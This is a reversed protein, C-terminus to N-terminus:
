FIIVAIFGTAIATIIASLFNVQCNSLIDLGTIHQISPGPHNVVKKRLPCFASYQLTSGILSDVMSGFFGGFFGLPIIGIQGILLDSISGQDYNTLLGLLLFCFGIFGGGVLSALTGSFSIGGNTGHPVKKFTTILRPSSSLIGIESAWTDGNCCSYHGLFAGLLFTKLFFRKSDLCHDEWGGQFWLFICILTASFSNALVQSWDRQGGEKFEDELKKKRASKYKTLKSSSLYFAVLTAGFRFGYAMTIAGVFFAAVSGSFSLSKKRLGSRALTVAFLLSFLIWVLERWAMIAKSLVM